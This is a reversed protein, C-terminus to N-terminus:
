QSLCFLALEGHLSVSGPARPHQRCKDAGIPVCNRHCPGARQQMICDHSLFIATNRFTPGPSRMGSSTRSRVTRFGFRNKWGKSATLACWIPLFRFQGPIELGVVFLTM